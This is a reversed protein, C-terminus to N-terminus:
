VKGAEHRFIYTWQKALSATGKAPYRKRALWRVDRDSVFQHKLYKWIISNKAAPNIECMFSNLKLSQRRANTPQPILFPCLETQRDIIQDLLTFDLRRHHNSAVM